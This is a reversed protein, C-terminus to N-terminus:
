YSRVIASRVVMESAIRERLAELTWDIMVDVRRIEDPTIGARDRLQRSQEVLDILTQLTQSIVKDGM